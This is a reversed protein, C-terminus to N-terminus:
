PVYYGCLIGLKLKHIDYKNVQCRIDDYSLM